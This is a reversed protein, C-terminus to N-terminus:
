ERNIVVSLGPILPAGDAGTHENPQMPRGWGRDLLAVSAAVAAAPHKEGCASIQVLAAIAAPTHSRALEIVDLLAKPRGGPNGSQGKEFKAV